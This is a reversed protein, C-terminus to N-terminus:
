WHIEYSNVTGMSLFYVDSSFLATPIYQEGVVITVQKDDNISGLSGTDDIFIRGRDTTDFVNCCHGVGDLSLCVFGSHIGSKEANNYLTEAYDACVFSGFSYPIQDTKDEQLFYMLESWTPIKADNNDHLTITHGNGGVLLGGNWYITKGSISAVTTDIWPKFYLIAGIIVGVIVIGVLILAGIVKAAELFSKKLDRNKQSSSVRDPISTRIRPRYQSGQWIVQEREPKPTPTKAMNDLAKKAKELREKRTQEL